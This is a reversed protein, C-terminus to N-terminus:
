LKQWFVKAKLKEFSLNTRSRYCLLVPSNDVFINNLLKTIWEAETNKSSNTTKKMKERSTFVHGNPQVKTVKGNSITFM